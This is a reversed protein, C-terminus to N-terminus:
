EAKNTDLTPHSIKLSFSPNQSGTPGQTLNPPGAQSCPAREEVAGQGGGGFNHTIRFPHRSHLSFVQPSLNEKSAGLGRQTLQSPTFPHPNESTASSTQPSPQWPLM